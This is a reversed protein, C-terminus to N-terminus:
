RIEEEYGEKSCGHIKRPAKREEKQRKTSDKLNTGSERSLGHRFWRLDDKNVENESQYANTQERVHQNKLLHM